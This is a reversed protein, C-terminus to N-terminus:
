NLRCKGMEIKAVMEFDLDEKARRHKESIKLFQMKMKKVYRKTCVQGCHRTFRATSGFAMFYKLFMRKTKTKFYKAMWSKEKPVPSRMFDSSFVLDRETVM